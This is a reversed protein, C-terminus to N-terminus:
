EDDDDLVRNEILSQYWYYSKKPMRKMSKRDVYVMGFSSDNRYGEAWEFNDMFTWPFYGHVPVGLKKANMIMALHKKMYRIRKEDNLQNHTTDVATGNETVYMRNLGHLHYKAYTQNLIDYLGNRYHPEWFLGWGLDSTEGKPNLMKDFGLENDTAFAIDGRYYNVGLSYLKDSIKLYKAEDHFQPKMADGYVRSLAEPYTGLFVPDLFWGNKHEDLLKAADINPQNLDKAYRPGLNLATSLKITPDAKVLQDAVEAQAYLLRHAVELAVALNREGPAHDGLYHAVLSSCRPENLIFYEEIYQGLHKQVLQAHKVFLETTKGSRWGGQAYLYQPLEWHYLTAYIRIGYSRLRSFYQEYWQLAKVNENGSETLIRSMSISTRYDRVGLDRMLDADHSWHSYRDIGVGPTDMGKDVCYRMWMTEVSNEYMRSQDESIVQLDADAIGFFFDDPINM